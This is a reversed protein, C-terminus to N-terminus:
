KKHKIERMKECSWDSFWFTDSFLDISMLFVESNGTDIFSLYNM